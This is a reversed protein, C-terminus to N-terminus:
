AALEVTNLEPATMRVSKGNLTGEVTVTTPKKADRGSFDEKWNISFATVTVVGKPTQIRDGRRVDRLAKTSM